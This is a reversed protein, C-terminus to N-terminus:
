SGAAPSWTYTRFVSDHQWGMAEYLAQAKSNTHATTLDMRAAGQQVAFAQAALMLSRALGERRHMPSVFLDYLVYIPQALVSCFSPYLQCFAVPEAAAGALFIVSEEAVMRKTLFSQCLALDSHQEYFQRYGDFLKALAPLDSATARRITRVEGM